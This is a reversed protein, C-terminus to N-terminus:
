IPVDGAQGWQQTPQGLIYWNGESPRWVAFDTKGDGTYDGPVPVDGAQGWQQTPQGFIYWNGESPRWVAFDTKGDGTYDGPMLLQAPQRNGWAREWLAVYGDASHLLPALDDASLGQAQLDAVLDPLMGVHALGDFNYDFTKQGVVSRDMQQGTSAATFRYAIPNAPPPGILGGRCSEPGFRPGPLGAFGNFDTGLGVPVGPMKSIAYLYAQVISNSSNGCTHPILPQGPGQWTTIEGADGQHVIVAVMGGLRHIREVESPLLQGEHSKEKRSIEVFGVHGAVVPYGMEECIELTDAKSRASMHDVDIIMGREIFERTLTKGLKTLGQVNRRGMRAEYGYLGAGATLDFHTWNGAEIYIEHIHGDLGRYDV